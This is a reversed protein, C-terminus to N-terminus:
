KNEKELIEYLIRGNSQAPPPIKLLHCLTPALDTLFVGKELVFDKKINKGALIGTSRMSGFTNEATPIQEAHVTSAHDGATLGYVVDGCYEGGLGFFGAEKKRVAFALYSTGDENRCHDQLATIIRGVTKEYEEQPVIGEKERGQLNVFIHGCGCLAAKTHKWDIVRKDADSFELLGGKHLALNISREQKVGISGHDSLVLISTDEEAIEDLFFGIHDDAAKYIEEVYKEIRTYEEKSSEKAKVYKSWALHNVTDIDGMYTVLINSREQKLARRFMEKHWENHFLWSDICLPHLIPDNFFIYEKHVPTPPMDEFLEAFSEPFIREKIYCAASAFLLTGKELKRLSFRFTLPLKEGNEAPLKRTVPLSWEGPLLPLKKDETVLFFTNEKEEVEWFFPLFKHYNCEPLTMSTHLLYKGKETLEAKSSPFICNELKQVPINNKDFLWVQQPIDTYEKTGDPLIMRGPNCSTGEVQRVLPSKVPASVPLTDILSTKGAKAASEWFREATLYNGHYASVTESLHTGPLHLQDSIIGNAEPSAGTMFASWCVPTITPHPPRLDSLLTGRKLLRAFNPLIGKAAKKVIYNSVAGDLGIVILEVKKMIEGAFFDQQM